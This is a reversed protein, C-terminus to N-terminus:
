ATRRRASDERRSAAEAILRNNAGLAQWERALALLCVLLTTGGAGGHLWGPIVRTHAAAGLIFNAVVLLLALTMVPFVRGKLAVTRRRFSDGWGREREMEKMEVGTAILFFMVFCHGMVLLFTSGLAALFHGRVWSPDPGGLLGSVLTGLLGLTGVLVLTLLAISM